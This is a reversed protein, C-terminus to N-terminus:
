LFIFPFIAMVPLFIMFGKILFGIGMWVGSIVHFVDSKEKEAKAISYIGILEIALLPMDQTALHTYDLFIPSLLLIGTSTMALQKGFFRKALFYTSFLSVLAFVLSPIHSSWSTYGFVKQCSAIIWQVGISRDFVPIGWSTPALWNGSDVIARSQLIYYGEDHAIYSRPRISLFLPIIFLM